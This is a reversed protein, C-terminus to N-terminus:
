RGGRAPLQRPQPPQDRHGRPDPRAYGLRIATREFEAAADRHGLADELIARTSLVMALHTTDAHDEFVQQCERLLQGAEALRGLDILPVADNFRTRTIEDLGVGRQRKSATIEANLDLCQQWRGLAQASARGTGLIVERVNWPNATENGAPRAPLGAM